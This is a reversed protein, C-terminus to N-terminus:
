SSKENILREYIRMLNEASQKCSFNEEIAKRGSIGMRILLDKNELLSAAAKALSDTDKSKVLIGNEGDKVIEPIGGAMTALVPKQCAMAELIVSPLGEEYSPLVFIDAANMFDPIRGHGQVGALHLSNGLNCRRSRRELYESASGDGVVVLHLSPYRKNLNVFAELLEFVGKEKEVRGVFLIVKDEPKIGLSRRIAIGSGPNFYFKAPDCGCYVTLIGSGPVAIAEAKQRLANSVAVIQDTHMIVKKTLGLCFNDFNPYTNIDSGIFTCVAPCRTFSKLLLAAYGDPTATFSHLIDPKFENVIKKVLGSVAWSMSFCSFGHFFKGPPRIFRPYYVQIGEIEGARSSEAYVKYRKNIKALFAPCFPQPSIVKIDGGAGKLAKLQEHVFIGAVPKNKDPYLHSIVM